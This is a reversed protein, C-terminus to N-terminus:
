PSILSPLCQTVFDHRLTEFTVSRHDGVERLFNNMCAIQKELIEEKQHFRPAFFVSFPSDPTRIFIDKKRDWEWVKIHDGRGRPYWVETVRRGRSGAKMFAFFDIQSLIGPPVSLPPGTLQSVASNYTEAHLNSAVSRRPSILKFYRAVEEGWLYSFYPGSGIEHVMLCLHRKYIRTEIRSLLSTGTITVIETELPLFGLLSAMLTTKGVGGPGAATLFSGNYYVILALESACELSITGAKMLDCLSLMRGGRQNLRNIAFLNKHDSGTM